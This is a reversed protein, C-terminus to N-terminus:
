QEVSMQAYYSLVATADRGDVTGDENFDSYELGDEDIVGEQGASVRAYQTLILTADVADVIGNMNADGLEYEPLKDKELM